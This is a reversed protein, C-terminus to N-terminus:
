GLYQTPRKKILDDGSQIKHPTAVKVLKTLWYKHGAFTCSEESNVVVVVVV